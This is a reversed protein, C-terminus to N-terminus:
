LTKSCWGFNPLFIPFFRYSKVNELVCTWLFFTKNCSGKQGFIPTKWSQKKKFGFVNINFLFCLKFDPFLLSLFFPNSLFLLVPFWFFSFINWSFHIAISFKWTTRKMVCFCLLFYFHFLSLFLFCFSLLFFSLSSSLFVLSLSLCLFLFLFLPLGFFTLPSLFLFMSFLCFIGKELRFFFFLTKKDILLLSLFPFFFCFCFWVIFYPPNLALHPPGFFLCFCFSFLVFCFFCILFCLLVLFFCCFFFFFWSLFLLFCLFVLFLAKWNDTLKEKKKSPSDVFQRKQCRPGSFACGFVSYFLPKLRNKPPPFFNHTM